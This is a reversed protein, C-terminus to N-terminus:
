RIVLVKVVTRSDNLGYQLFYLGAALNRLDLRTTEPGQESLVYQTRGLQDTLQISNVGEVYLWDRVPNPYIRLSEQTGLVRDFVATYTVDAEPTAVVQTITGGHQWQTFVYSAGDLTQELEVGIGRKIGEVSEVEFPAPKPQGDLLITLGTPETAFSLMSKKPYVDVSDKGVAGQSDTVSLIFRYWVNASTEGEDPITFEGSSIGPIPVGDHVHTDHHFNIQWSYDGADLNDEADTGTGSFSINTGAVYLINEVPTLITAVPKTNPTVTLSVANSTVQGAQNSVMVKYTGADTLATSAITFSAATAGVIPFDNKYWQYTLPNTGNAIVTLNTAAGEAITASQPQQVIVPATANTSTIKYLAGAGRSLYYLNGDPGTTLAVASGGVNSGFLTPNSAGSIDISYIWNSCYDQFFYKGIYSGPYTTFQPNFFTGGTIACGTPQAGSHLYAYVPNTFNPNTSNGEATPWGFNRGGVSADNIEEASNQGVDNVFIKGTVPQISFTYPNRLGYSWVRKRQESATTSYFPNDTPSSGDKNIRLMKGHYTDLNQPHSNSANDGVAVYLKGDLGFALAGGNHNTAGSLNDLDLIPQLSGALAVDGNATYRVIRNRVPAVSTTYYLYVFGNTAFDPDLAIGILGREGSSSVSSLTIFPTALLVGNKIVRLAGGQQAVFIRGDPAFALVTPSSINNAVQVRSFGSPFTQGQVFEGIVAALIILIARRMGVLTALGNKLRSGNIAL